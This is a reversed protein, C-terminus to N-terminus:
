HTDDDDLSGTFPDGAFGVTLELGLFDGSGLARDSAHTYVIGLGVTGLPEIMEREKKKKFMRTLAIGVSTSLVRAERNEDVTMCGGGTEDEVCISGGYMARGYWRLKPHEASVAQQYFGGVMVVPKRKPGTEVDRAALPSAGVGIMVAGAQRKDGGGIGLELSGQPAAAATSRAHLATDMGGRAGVYCGSAFALLALHKM